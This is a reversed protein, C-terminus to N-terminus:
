KSRKKKKLHLLIVSFLGALSIALIVVALTGITILNLSATPAPKYVTATDTSVTYLLDFANDGNSDILYQDTGKAQATTRNQTANSFFGDYTGTGNSDILYGYTGVNQIGIFILSQATASSNKQDDIATGTVWYAGNKTWVHTTQISTNAIQSPTTTNTGDGWDLLYSINGGDEDYSLISFNYAKNITGRLIGTIEPVSPIRDAQSIAAETTYTDNAGADDWVTFSVKYVGPKVYVHSANMSTNSANNLGDGFSWAYKVLHGPPTDYSHSGDFQIPRGTKGNYPGRGNAIPSINPTHSGSSLSYMGCDLTTDLPNYAFYVKKTLPEFDSDLYDASGQHIPSLIYDKSPEVAITYNGAAVANLRYHGNITAVTQVMSNTENYLKVTVGDLGPETEDQVGDKNLDNWIFGGFPIPEPLQYEIITRQYGDGSYAEVAIACIQGPGPCFSSNEPSDANNILIQAGVDDTPRGDTYFWLAEQTSNLSVGGHFNLIYNIRSWIESGFALTTRSSYYQYLHVNHKSYIMVAGKEICWGKYTQGSVAYGNGVESFTIDFHSDTGKKAEMKVWDGPLPFHTTCPESAPVIPITCFVLMVILAIIVATCPNKM